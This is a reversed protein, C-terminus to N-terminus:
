RPSYSAPTVGSRNEVQNSSVTGNHFSPIFQAAAVNEEVTRTRYVPQIGNGTLFGPGQLSDTKWLLTANPLRFSAPSEQTVPAPQSITLYVNDALPRKSPSSMSAPPTSDQMNLGLVLLGVAAASYSCAVLPKFDFAERLRLWLSPRDPLVREAEIRAIIQSSLHDLHGPPPEEWRKLKLLKVLAEQQKSDNAM